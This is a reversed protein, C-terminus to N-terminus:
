NDIVYIEGRENMAYPYLVDPLRHNCAVQIRRFVHPPISYITPFLVTPDPNRVVTLERIETSATSLYNPEVMRRMHQISYETMPIYYSISSIEKEYTIPRDKGDSGKEYDTYSEIDTFKIEWYKKDEQGNNIIRPIAEPITFTHSM